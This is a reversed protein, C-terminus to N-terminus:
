VKELDEFPVTFELRIDGAYVNLTSDGFIDQNPYIKDFLVVGKDQTSDIQIEQLIGESDLGLSGFNATLKVRDGVEINTDYYYSTTPVVIRCPQEEILFEITGVGEDLCELALRAMTLNIEIPTHFFVNM